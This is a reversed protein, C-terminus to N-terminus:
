TFYSIVIVSTAASPRKHTLGVVYLSAYQCHSVDMRDCVYGIVVNVLKGLFYSACTKIHLCNMAAVPNQEKFKLRGNRIRFFGYQVVNDLAMARCPKFPCFVLLELPM